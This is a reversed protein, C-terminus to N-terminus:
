SGSKQDPAAGIPSAGVIHPAVVYPMTAAVRKRRAAELQSANLAAVRSAALLLPLYAAADQAHEIGRVVIRRGTNTRVTVAGSSGFRYTKISIDEVEHLDLEALRLNPLGPSLRIQNGTAWVGVTRRRMAAFLFLLAIVALGGVAWSAFNPLELLAALGQGYAMWALGGVAAITALVPLRYHSAAGEFGVAAKPMSLLGGTVNDNSLAAKTPFRPAVPTAAMVTEAVQSAEGTPASQKATKAVM